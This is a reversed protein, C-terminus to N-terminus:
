HIKKKDIDDNKNTYKDNKPMLLKTWVIESSSFKELRIADYWIFGASQM